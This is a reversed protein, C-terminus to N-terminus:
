GTLRTNKNVSKNNRRYEELVKQREAEQLPTLPEPEGLVQEYRKQTYEEAKQEDQRRWRDEIERIEQIREPTSARNLFYIKRIFKQMEEHETELTSIRIKDQAQTKRLVENITEIETLKEQSFAIAKEFLEIKDTLEAKAKGSSDGNLALSKYSEKFIRECESDLSTKYTIKSADTKKATIVCAITENMKSLTDFVFKRIAHYRVERGYTDVNAKRVLAKLWDNLNDNSANNWLLEPLRGNNEKELMRLYVSLNEIAEPTLFSRPQVSTKSRSVGIFGIFDSHKDKAEKVLNAIKDTELALFDISAYGLSVTCSLWTKEFADGYFYLQRLIEQNFKFENDPIQVPDLERTVGKIGECNNSYFALVGTVRTRAHNIKAGKAKLENYYRLINNKTERRWDQLRGFDNRSQVYEAILDEAEKGIWDCYRWLDMASKQASSKSSSFYKRYEVTKGGREM